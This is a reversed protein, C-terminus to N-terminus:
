ELFSHLGFGQDSRIVAGGCGHDGRLGPRLRQSDLRQETPAVLRLIQWICDIDRVSGPVDFLSRNVTPVGPVLRANAEM